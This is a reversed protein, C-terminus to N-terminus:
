KNKLFYGAMRPLAKYAGVSIMAGDILMSFDIILMLKPASLSPQGSAHDALTRFYLGNGEVFLALLTCYIFLKTKEPETFQRKYKLSFHWSIIVFAAYVVLIVASGGPKATPFVQKLFYGLAIWTMPFLLSYLIMNPTKGVVERGAMTPGTRASPPCIPGPEEIM